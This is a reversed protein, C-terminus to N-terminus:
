TCVGVGLESLVQVGSSTVAARRSWGDGPRPRPSGTPEAGYGLMVGSGGAIGWPLVKPVCM